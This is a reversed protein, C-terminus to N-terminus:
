DSSPTYLYQPVTYALAAIIYTANLRGDRQLGAIANLDILEIDGISEAVEHAPQAIRRANRARVIHTNHIIKSPFVELAVIYELEAAEYGTEELLERAAADIPTEGNEIGGAPFTLLSKNAAYKYENFAILRDDEDTAVVIVGDGLKVLSYDDIVNGSPLIVDDSYVEMHPTDYIVRREKRQWQVQDM